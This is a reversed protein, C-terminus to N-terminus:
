ARRARSRARGSARSGLGAAELARAWGGFAGAITNRNPWEPHRERARAYVTSTLEGDAEDAVARLVALYATQGSVPDPLAIEPEVYARAEHLAARAQAVAENSRGRGRAYEAAGIRWAQFERRKRGRLSAADLLAIVRPLEARRCITWRVSPNANSPTLLSVRGLDFYQQFTQLLGADDARVHICAVAKGDLGFSGEGTFFGGLFALLGDARRQSPHPDERRDVYRRLDRLEAAYAGLRQQSEASGAGYLSETWESVASAWTAFERRKRGRLPYRELLRVIHRCELKSRVSWCVQPRSSRQAPRQHLRGLGTVRVIDMLMDADDARQTLTMGCLWSRGGNNPRIDFSAEAEIFGALAHGDVDDVGQAGAVRRAKEASGGVARGM